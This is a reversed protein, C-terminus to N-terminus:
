PKHFPAFCTLCLAVECKECAISTRKSKEKTSCRACRRSSTPIPLHTGINILDLDAVKRGTVKTGKRVGTNPKRSSFNGILETALQERFLLQSMPKIGNEKSIYKYLIYSNVIVSELLFYFIKIWWRRSKQAISYCSKYHDFHDVGGMYVNYDAVARPCKVNIKNGHKDKREIETCDEPDHMNSAIKVSKKGKDKWKIVSIENDAAFDSEGYKLQNDKKLIQNPFYKRDSQMTGCGFLNKSLLKKLLFFNTFFRDFFLCYGLSEFAQSLGLVVYEGLTEEKQRLTDKGEYIDFNILFGTVACAIAWVKFGRKIPKNPIYQKLASRGKFAVMSEDISLFRSPSFLDSFRKKLFNLMPRLKYLRDFNPEGKKPMTSNDNLHLFRLILLFRRLSMVNAIAEVRFSPKSSWYLRMSPLEHFGMIILIGFFALLEEKTLNLTHHKQQAFKNSEDIIHDLFAGIIVLFIKIPTSIDIPFKPGMPQTFVFNQFTTPQNKNKSFTFPPPPHTQNAAANQTPNPVSDNEIGQNSESDSEESSTINLDRLLQLNKLRRFLKSGVANPEYTPDVDSDDVYDDSDEDSQNKEFNLTTQPRGKNSSSSSGERGRTRGRTTTPSPEETDSAFPTSTRLCSPTRTTDIFDDPDSDGNCESDAGMDDTVNFIFDEHVSTSLSDFSNATYINKRRKKAPGNDDEELSM